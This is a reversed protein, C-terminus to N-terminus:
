FAAKVALFFPHHSFDLWQRDGDFFVQGIYPKLIEPIDTMHEQAIETLNDLKYPCNNILLGCTKQQHELFLIWQKTTKQRIEPYFLAELHFVPLAEGRHNFFGSFWHPTNPIAHIMTAQIIESIIGKPVLLAISGVIFGHRIDATKINDLHPYDLRLASSNIEQLLIDFKSPAPLENM